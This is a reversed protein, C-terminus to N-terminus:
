QPSGEGGSSAGALEALRAQILGEMYEYPNTGALNLVQGDVFVTPTSGVGRSNGYARSSAIENLYRSEGMCSRYAGMDLGVDEAAQTFEGEPSASTYWRTQRSFLLDSMPWYRDQEGACRAAMAAPVSNPFSGLVYDYLVWRVPGGSVEVYNQRILKGAFGTFRACAPCSYDVFEEIVVPADAAGLSIGTSPDATVEASLAEFEAPTPLPGVAGGRGATLLWGLGGVVILGGIILFVKNGGGSPPPGADSKKTKQAM